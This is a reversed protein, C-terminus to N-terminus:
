RVSFSSWYRWEGMREGMSLVTSVALLGVGGFGGGGLLPLIEGGGESESFYGHPLRNRLGFAEGAPLLFVM